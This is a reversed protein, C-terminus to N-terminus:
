GKTECHELWSQLWDADYGMAKAFDELEFWGDGRAVMHVVCRKVWGEIDTEFGGAPWLMRRHLERLDPIREDDEYGTTWVWRHAMEDEATWDPPPKLRGLGLREYGTMRDGAVVTKRAITPRLLKVQKPEAKYNITGAVRLIRALDHTSDVGPLIRHQHAKVRMTAKDRAERKAVNQVASLFWYGHWGNGTHVVMDADALLDVDAGEVKADLDVWFCGMQQVMQASKGGRECRPLVGVYVDRGESVWAGIKDLMDECPDGELCTPLGFWESAARKAHLTRVEIWGERYPGFLRRLYARAEERLYQAM